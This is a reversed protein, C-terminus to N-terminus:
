QSTLKALQRHIFHYSRNVVEDLIYFGEVARHLEPSGRELFLPYHDQLLLFTWQLQLWKSIKLIGEEEILQLIESNRRYPIGSLDLITKFLTGNLYDYLAKGRTLYGEIVGRQYPSLKGIEEGTLPIQEEVILRYYENVGRHLLTLKQLQKEIIEGWM